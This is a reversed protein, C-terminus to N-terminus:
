FDVAPNANIPTTSLGVNTVSTNNTNNSSSVATNSAANLKTFKEIFQDFRELIYEQKRWPGNASQGSQEPLLEIIKGSIEM